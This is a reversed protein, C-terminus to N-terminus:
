ASDEAQSRSLPATKTTATQNPRIDDGPRRRRRRYQEDGRHPEDSDGSMRAGRQQNLRPEYRRHLVKQRNRRGAGGGRDAGSKGPRLSSCDGCHAYTEPGTRQGGKRIGRIGAPRQEQGGASSTDGHHPEVPTKRGYTQFPIRRWIGAWLAGAPRQEFAAKHRAITEQAIEALGIGGIRSSTGTFYKDIVERNLGIAEFLQANHYSRLTSIGMKSMVKLIGKKVAAIYNDAIQTPEMKAPLHGQRQMEFLTEFALYPNIANAGYGCLLCFHMVERPEGTEIILGAEGRLGRNLLGHHVAATALLSPIAAKGQSIDRDSIIIFSAGDRIAKEAADVLEDLAKRM